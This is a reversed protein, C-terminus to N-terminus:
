DQQIEDIIEFQMGKPVGGEPFTKLLEENIEIDQFQM